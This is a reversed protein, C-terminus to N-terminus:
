KGQMKQYEELTITKVYKDQQYFAIESICADAFKAGQGDVELIEIKLWKFETLAMNHIKHTWMDIYQTQNRVGDDYSILNVDFEAAVSRKGADDAIMTIRVKKIRNNSKWTDSTKAYGPTIALMDPCDNQDKFTFEVYQGTGNGADGEVWATEKKGDMINKVAYANSKSTATSSAKVNTAKVEKITHGSYGAGDFTYYTSPKELSVNQDGTQALAVGTSVGFFLLLNLYKMVTMKLLFLFRFLILYYYPM